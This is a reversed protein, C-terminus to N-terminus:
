SEHKTQKEQKNNLLYNDIKNTIKKIIGIILATSLFIEFLGIAVKFDDNISLNNLGDSLLVIILIVLISRFTWKFEPTQQIKKLFNM